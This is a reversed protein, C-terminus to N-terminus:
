RRGNLLDQRSWRVGTGRLVANMASQHCAPDREYGIARRGLDRAMGLVQGSGAFPDVVLDGPVTFLEILRRVLEPPSQHRHIRGHRAPPVLWHPEVLQLASRRSISLPVRRSPSWDPHSCILMTSTSLVKFTGLAPRMVFGPLHTPKIGTSRFQLSSRVWLDHRQAMSAHLAALPLRFEGYVIDRTEICCVGTRGIVRAMEAFVPDLGRAFKEIREWTGMLDRHQKRPRCLEDEVEPPFYPPSTIILHAEAAGICAMEASDGHILTVAPDRM